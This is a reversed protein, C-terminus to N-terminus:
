KSEPVFKQWGSNPIWDGVEAKGSKVEPAEKHFRRRPYIQGGTKQRGMSLVSRCRTEQCAWELYDVSDVTRARAVINSSGCAGCQTHGFAEFASSLQKHLDVPSDSDLEVAAKESLQFTLRM